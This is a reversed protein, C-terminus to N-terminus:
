IRASRPQVQGGRRRAHHRPRDASGDASRGQDDAPATDTLVRQVNERHRNRFATARPRARARVAHRTQLRFHRAAPIVAVHALDRVEARLGRRRVRRDRDARAANQPRVRALAVALLLLCATAAASYSSSASARLSPPTLWSRLRFPKGACAASEAGCRKMPAGLARRLIWEASLLTLVFAYAWPEHWLDRREPAADQPATTQLWSVVQKAEGARVYRGGSDRAVRRLFGENLRPDAAVEPRRRRRVHWGATPLGSRHRARARRPTCAAHGARDPRFAATFRGSSPIRTGCNQGARPDGGPGSVTADVTADPVGAFPTARTSRGISIADGPEPADPLTPDRGPNRRRRRGALARGAALLVRLQSGDLQAADKWRWAAEGAFLWRGGRATASCPLWRICTRRRARDDRSCQRARVRDAWHPREVRAGPLAAWEKRTDAPAIGLRM